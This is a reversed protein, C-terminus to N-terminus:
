NKEINDWICNYEEISLDSGFLRVTTDSLVPQYKNYLITTIDKNNFFNSIKM